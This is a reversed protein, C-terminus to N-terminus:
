FTILTPQIRTYGDKTQTLYKPVICSVILDIMYKLRM